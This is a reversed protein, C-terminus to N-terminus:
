KIPNSLPFSSFAAKTLLFCKKATEPQIKQKKHKVQWAFGALICFCLGIDPQELRETYFLCSQKGKKNKVISIM